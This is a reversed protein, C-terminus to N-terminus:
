LSLRVEVYTQQRLGELWKRRIEALQQQRLRTTLLERAERFPPLAEQGAAKLKDYLARLQEERIISSHQQLVLQLMKYELVQRELEARYDAATMGASREVQAFLQTRTMNNQKAVSDLARELESREVEVQAKAAAQAILQEEVLKGLLDRRVRARAIMREGEDTISAEMTRIFPRARRRLTSLLIPAEGVVAAVRDVVYDDARAAAPVLLLALMTSVVVRTRGMRVRLM